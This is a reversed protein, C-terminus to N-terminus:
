TVRDRFKWRCQDFKLFIFHSHRNPMLVRVILFKSPFSYSLTSHSCVDPIYLITMRMKKLIEIKNLMLINRGKKNNLLENATGVVVSVYHIYTNPMITLRM